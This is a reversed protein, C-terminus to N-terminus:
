NYKIEQPSVDGSCVIFITKVKATTHKRLQRMAKDVAAGKTVGHGFVEDYGYAGDEAIVLAIWGFQVWTLVKADDANCQSIAEREAAFRSSFNYGCGFNGTKESYAVAAYRTPNILHTDATAPASFMGLGLVSLVFGALLTKM